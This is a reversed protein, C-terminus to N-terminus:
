YDVRIDQLKKEAEKNSNSKRKVFVDDKFKYRLSSYKTCIYLIYINQLYMVYEM